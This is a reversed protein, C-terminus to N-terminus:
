SPKTTIPPLLTIDDERSWIVKVPRKTANSLEVAEVIFDGKSKRGFAGGMLTQNIEVQAIDEKKIGLEEAVKRRAWQPAQTGAWVTCKKDTVVATAAPTEMPAHHIYPVTYTAAVTNNENYQHGYVDGKTAVDEGKQNVKKVLEAKFTESNHDKKDGLQWEIKLKKRGEKMWLPVNLLIQKLEVKLENITEEIRKKEEEPLATFEKLTGIKNNVTPTLTYGTNTELLAINQQKAKEKLVGIAQQEKEDYEENIESVRAKYENSQFVKPLTVLLDEICQEMGRRLQCAKGAPLEMVMPQHPSSFNNVYCWDSPQPCKNAYQHIFSSVMQHKGMGAPGMVFINYGEHEIGVGFRLAEIARNQGFYSDLDEINATNSFNLTAPDCCQYLSSAPLPNLKKHKDM